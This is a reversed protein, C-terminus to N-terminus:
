KNLNKVIYESSEIRRRTEQADHGFFQKVHKMTTKSYEWKPDLTVEGADFTAVHITYSFLYIRHGDEIVVYNANNELIRM